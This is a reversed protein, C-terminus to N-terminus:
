TGYFTSNAIKVTSFLNAGLAGGYWKAKNEIFACRLLTLMINNFNTTPSEGSFSSNEVTVNNNEYLYM